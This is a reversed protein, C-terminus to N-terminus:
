SIRDPIHWVRQVFQEDWFFLRDRQLCERRQIRKIGLHEINDWGRWDGHGIPQYSPKDPIGLAAPGSRNKAM